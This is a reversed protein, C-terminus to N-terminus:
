PTLSATIANIFQKMNPDQRVNVPAGLIHEAADIYYKRVLETDRIVAYESCSIMIENESYIAAALDRDTYQSKHYEIAFWERFLSMGWESDNLFHLFEGRHITTPIEEANHGRGTAMTRIYRLAPPLEFHAYADPVDPSWCFKFAGQPLVIGVKGYNAAFSQNGAAFLGESRYPIGFQKTLHDNLENHLVLPMDKPRRDKRPQYLAVFSDQPILSHEMGRYMWQNGDDRMKFFQSAQQIAHILERTITLEDAHESLQQLLKM